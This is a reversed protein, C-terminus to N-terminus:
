RSLAGEQQQKPKSLTLRGLDVRQGPSVKAIQKTAGQGGETAIAISYAIGSPILDFSFTGDESVDATGFYLDKEVMDEQANGAMLSVRRQKAKYHLHAKAGAAAKGDTTMARGSINGAPLLEIPKTKSGTIEVGLALKREPHQLLLTRPVEDALGYVEFNPESRIPSLALHPNAVNMASPLLGTVRYGTLPQKLEDLVSFQQRDLPELTIDCTAGDGVKANVEAVSNGFRVSILHYVRPRQRGKKIYLGKIKEAGAGHKFIGANTAGCLVIGRGPVGVIRYTGDSNIPVRDSYGVTMM